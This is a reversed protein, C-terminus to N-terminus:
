EYPWADVIHTTETVTHSTEGRVVTGLANKVTAFVYENLGIRQQAGRHIWTKRSLHM